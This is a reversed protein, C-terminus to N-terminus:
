IVWQSGVRLYLIPEVLILVTEPEDWIVRACSLCVSNCAVSIRFNNTRCCYQQLQYSICCKFYHYQSYWMPDRPRM